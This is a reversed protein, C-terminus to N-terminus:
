MQSVPLYPALEERLLDVIRDQTVNRWLAALAGRRDRSDTGIFGEEGVAVEAVEAVADEVGCRMLRGSVTLRVVPGFHGSEWRFRPSMDLMYAAPGCEAATMGIGLRSLAGGLYAGLPGIDDGDAQIRLGVRLANLRRSREQLILKYLEFDESVAKPARGLAFLDSGPQLMKKFAQEATRFNATWPVLEEDAHLLHESSARFTTAHLDYERRLHQGAEDRQLYCVAAHVKGYRKSLGEDRRILEAHSFSSNSVTESVIRRFEDSRGNSSTASAVQSVVSQIQSRIQRAVEARARGLADEASDSSLGMGVIFSEQPYRKVMDRQLKESIDALAVSPVLVVLALVLFVGFGMAVREFLVLGRSQAACSRMATDQQM